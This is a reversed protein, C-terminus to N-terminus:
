GILNLEYKLIQFILLYDYRYVQLDLHVMTQVVEHALSRDSQTQPDSLDLSDVSILLGSLGSSFNVDPILCNSVDGM